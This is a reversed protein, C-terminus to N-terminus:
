FINITNTIKVKSSVSPCITPMLQLYKLKPEIKSNRYNKKKTIQVIDINNYIHTNKFCFSIHKNKHLLFIKRM